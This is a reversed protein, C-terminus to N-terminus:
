RVSGYNAKSTKGHSDFASAFIPNIGTFFLFYQLNSSKSGTHGPRCPSIAVETLKCIITDGSIEAPGEKIYYSVNLGCDSVANLKMCETGVQIDPLSPFLISQRRGATLPYPITMNLEQVTGKYRADGDGRLTM